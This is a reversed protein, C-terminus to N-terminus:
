KAQRDRSRSEVRATAGRRRGTSKGLSAGGQPLKRVRQTGRPTCGQQRTRVVAEQPTRRHNRRHTNQRVIQALQEQPMVVGMTDMGLLRALKAKKARDSVM